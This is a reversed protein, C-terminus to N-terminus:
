PTSPTGRRRGQRAEALDDGALLHEVAAVTEVELGPPGGAPRDPAEAAASVGGRPQQSNTSTGRATASRTEALGRQSTAAPVLLCAGARAAAPQPPAGMCTGSTSSAAALGTTLAAGRLNRSLVRGEEVVPLHARAPPQPPASAGDRFGRRGLWAAAPLPPAGARGAAPQPPGGPGHRFLGRLNRSLVEDKRLWRSTHVHRHNLLRALATEFGGAVWGGPRSPVGTSFPPEPGPRHRHDGRAHDGILWEVLVGRCGSSAQASVM